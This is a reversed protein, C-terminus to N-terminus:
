TKMSYSNLSTNLFCLFVIWLIVVILQHLWQWPVVWVKGFPLLLFLSKFKTGTLQSFRMKGFTSYNEAFDIQLVATSVNTEIQEKLKMYSDSQKQEIFFHQLFSPVMLTLDDYLVDAKDSKQVKQLQEKGSAMLKKEWQYWTVEVSKDFLPFKEIFQKGGKCEDCKNNWCDDSNENCDLSPPLDHSYLPFDSQIKHTVECFLMFNQHYRCTCVNVPLDSSLLVHKPRLEAYKSKRICEDPYKERFLKYAEAVTMFLHRRQRTEKRVDTCVVNTDRKGPAQRSIDDQEYCNEVMTVIERNLSPRGLTKAPSRSTSCCTEEFLKQVVQSCKRPSDRLSSEAKCIARTLTSTAKHASSTITTKGANKTRQVTKTM